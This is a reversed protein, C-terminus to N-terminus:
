PKATPTPRRVREKIRAGTDRSSPTPFSTLIPRARPRPPLVRTGPKPRRLGRRAGPRIVVPAPIRPGVGVMGQSAPIASVLPGSLHDVTNVEQINPVVNAQLPPARPGPGLSPGLRPEQRLAGAMDRVTGKPPGRKFPPEGGLLPESTASAILRQARIDSSPPRRAKAPAPRRRSADRASALRVKRPPSAPTVRRAAGTLRVGNPLPRASM